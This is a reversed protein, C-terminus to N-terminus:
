GNRHWTIAFPREDALVENVFGVDLVGGCVINDVLTKLFPVFCTRVYKFFMTM